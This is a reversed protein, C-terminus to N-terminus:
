SGKYLSELLNEGEKNFWSSFDEVKMQDIGSSGRHQKVRKYAKQFNSRSCIVQMLNITALTEEQQGAEKVQSEKRAKAERVSNCDELYRIVNLDEGKVSFIDIQYPISQQRKM